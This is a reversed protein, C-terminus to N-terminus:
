FFNHDEDLSLPSGFTLVAPSYHSSGSFDDSSPTECYLESFHSNISSSSHGSPTLGKTSEPQSVPAARSKSGAVKQLLEKKLDALEQSLDEIKRELTVNEARLLAMKEATEKTKQRSKERSKKVAVNNRDRKLRYVDESNFQQETTSPSGLSFALSEFDRSDAKTKQRPSM